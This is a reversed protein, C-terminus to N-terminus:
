AGRFGHARKCVFDMHKNAREAQLYDLDAWASAYCPMLQTSPTASCGAEGGYLGYMIAIQLDTAGVEVLMDYLSKVDVETYEDPLTPLILEPRGDRNWWPVRHYWWKLDYISGRIGHRGGTLNYRFRYGKEVEGIENCM